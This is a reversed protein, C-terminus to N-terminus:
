FFFVVKQIYEKIKDLCDIDVLEEIMKRNYNLKLIEEYYKLKEKNGILQKRVTNKSVNDNEAIEDMTLNDFYYDEFYKQQKDTLLKGYYDYLSIIYVREEM